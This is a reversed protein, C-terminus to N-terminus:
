REGKHSWNWHSPQELIDGFSAVIFRGGPSLLVTKAYTDGANAYSWVGNVSEFGEVGHCATLIDVVELRERKRAFPLGRTARLAERPTLEGQNMQFQCAMRRATEQRELNDVADPMTLSARLNGRLTRLNM